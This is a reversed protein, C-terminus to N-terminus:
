LIQNQCINWFQLKSMTKNQGPIQDSDIAHTIM